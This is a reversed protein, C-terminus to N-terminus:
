PEYIVPGGGRVARSAPVPDTIARPEGAAVWGWGSIIRMTAIKWRGDVPKFTLQYQGGQLSGSAGSSTMFFASLEASQLDKAVNIAINAAHHGGRIFQGREGYPRYLTAINEPGEFHLDDMSGPPFNIVDLVGDPAFLGVLRDPYGVDLYYFYRTFVNQVEREAELRAIRNALEAIQDSM